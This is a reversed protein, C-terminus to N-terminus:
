SGSDSGPASSRIGGETARGWFVARAPAILAGSSEGLGQAPLRSRALPLPVRHSETTLEAAIRQLLRVRKDTKRVARADVTMPFVSVDQKTEIYTKGEPLPM